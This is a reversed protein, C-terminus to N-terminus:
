ELEIVEFMSTTNLNPGIVLLRTYAPLDELIFSGIRNATNTDFNSIGNYLFSHISEQNLLILNGDDYYVHGQLGWSADVNGHIESVQIVPILSSPQNTPPLVSGSVQTGIVVRARKKGYSPIILPNPMVDNSIVLANQNEPRLKTEDVYEYSLRLSQDFNFDAYVIKPLGDPLSTFQPRCHGITETESAQKIADGFAVNTVPDIHFYAVRIQMADIVVGDGTSRQDRDTTANYLIAYSAAGHYGQAMPTIAGLKDVSYLGAAHVGGPQPYAQAPNYGYKQNSNWNIPSGHVDQLFGSVFYRSHDPTSGSLTGYVYAFVASQQGKVRADTVLPDPSIISFRHSSYVFPGYVGGQFEASTLPSSIESDSIKYCYISLSNGNPTKISFYLIISNDIYDYLPWFQGDISNMGSVNGVDPQGSGGSPPISGYTSNSSTSTNSNGIGNSAGPPYGNPGDFWTIVDNKAQQVSLVLRPNVLWASAPAGPYFADQNVDAVFISFADNTDNTGAPSGIWFFKVPYPRPVTPSGPTFKSTYFFLANDVVGLGMDPITNGLADTTKSNLFAADRVSDVLVYRMGVRAALAKVSNVIKSTTSPSLGVEGLVFSM